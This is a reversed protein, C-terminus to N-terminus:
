EEVFLMMTIECTQHKEHARACGTVHLESMPKNPDREYSIYGHDDLWHVLEQLQWSDEAFGGTTFYNVADLPSISSDYGVKHSASAHNQRMRAIIERMEKLKDM